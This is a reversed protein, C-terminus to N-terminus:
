GSSKCLRYLRHASAQKTPDAMVREIFLKGQPTQSFGAGMQADMEAAIASQGQSNGFNGLMDGWSQPLIKKAGQVAKVRVDGQYKQRAAALQAQLAPPLKKDAASLGPTGAAVQAAGGAAVPAGGMGPIMQMLGNIGQQAGGGFMGGSAMAGAGMGLGALAMLGMGMGGEGFLTSMLGIAGMGLGLFMLGQQMGSMEGFREQLGSLMEPDHAMQPNQKVFNDFAEHQQEPTLNGTSLQKVLKAGQPTAPDIGRAKFMDQTHSQLAAFAKPPDAALKPDTLSKDVTAPDPKPPVAPDAPKTDPNPGKQGDPGSTAGPQGNAGAAPALVGAAAGAGPKPPTIPKGTSDFPATGGSPPALVGAAAGAGPQPPTIPKGTSDVPATGGSPPALVGAAAGAGPQPPTIPKGTSDFPVTGGSPQNGQPAPTPKPAAAAPAAVPAKAPTPTIPPKPAAAPPPTAAAAPAAPMTPLKISPATTNAAPSGGKTADGLFSWATKEQEEQAKRRQRAKYLAYLGGAGAIGAAGGAYYPAYKSLHDMVPSSAAPGAESKAAAANAAADAQEAKFTAKHARDGFLASPVAGGPALTLGVRTAGLGARAARGAGAAPTLARALMGARGSAALNGMGGTAMAVPVDVAAMAAVDEARGSIQRQWNPMNGENMLQKFNKQGHAAMTPTVVQGQPGRTSRTGDFGGTIGLSAGVDHLGAGTSKLGNNFMTDTATTDVTKPTWYDSDGGFLGNVKNGLWSSGRAAGNWAHQAGAGVGGLATESAGRLAHVQGHAHRALNSQMDDWVGPMAEAFKRFEEDIAAAKCLGDAIERESLHEEGCRQLFGAVLPHEQLLRDPNAIYGEIAALTAHKRLGHAGPRQKFPETASLSEQGHGAISGWADEGSLLPLTPVSYGSPREGFAFPRTAMPGLCLPM